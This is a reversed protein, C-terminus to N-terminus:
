SQAPKYPEWKTFNKLDNGDYEVVLKGDTTYRKGDRIIYAVGSLRSVRETSRVLFANWRAPLSKWIRIVLAQFANWKLIIKKM